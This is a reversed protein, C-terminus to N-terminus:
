HASRPACRAREGRQPVLPISAIRSRSLGLAHHLRSSRPPLRSSCPHAWPSPPHVRPSPPPSSLNPQTVVFLVAGDGASHAYRLTRAPSLAVTAVPGHDQYYAPPFVAHYRYDASLFLTTTISGVSLFLAGTPSSNEVIPLLGPDGQDRGGAETWHLRIGRALQAQGPTTSYCLGSLLPGHDSSQSCNRHDLLFSRGASVM